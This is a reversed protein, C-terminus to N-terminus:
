RLIIEHHIKQGFTVLSMPNNIHDTQPILETSIQHHYMQWYHFAKQARFLIGTAIELWYRIMEVNEVARSSPENSQHNRIKCSVKLILLELGLIHSRIQEVHSLGSLQCDSKAITSTSRDQSSGSGDDHKVNCSYLRVVAPAWCRICCKQLARWSIEYVLRLITTPLGLLSVASCTM